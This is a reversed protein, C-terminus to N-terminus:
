YRKLLRRGFLLFFLMAATISLIAPEPTLFYLPDDSPLKPPPLPTVMPSMQSFQVKESRDPIVKTKPALFEEPPDPPQHKPIILDTPSGSFPDDVCGTGIDEMPETVSFDKFLLEDVPASRIDLLSILLLIYFM